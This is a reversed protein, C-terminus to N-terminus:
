RVSISGVSDPCSCAASERVQNLQKFRQEAHLKKPGDPQRDPHWRMAQQMFASKLENDTCQVSVGLTKYDNMRAGHSISAIGM